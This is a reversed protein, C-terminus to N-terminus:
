TWLAEQRGDGDVTDKIPVTSRRRGVIGSAVEKDVEQPVQVLIRDFVEAVVRELELAM